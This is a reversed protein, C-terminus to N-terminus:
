SLDSAWRELRSENAYADDRKYIYNADPQHVRSFARADDLLAQLASPNSNVPKQKENLAIELARRVLEAESLGLEHAKRKLLADQQPDIYLQKRIMTM